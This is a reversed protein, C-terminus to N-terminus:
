QLDVYVHKLITYEELCHASLDCSWGSHKLGGHPMESVLPLHDNIWVEGARLANAIKFARKIDSTWVSSALGYEIDNAKEIAEEENIFRSIAIVPGFIEQQCIISKQEMDRIITIPFFFGKRPTPSQYIIREHKTLQKLFGAVRDRQKASVLPGITTGAHSPDGVALTETYKKALEIFKEYVLGQVYIRAAATCDQGSNVISADVARKAAKELDADAFVIFPAKGGLELHVKKLNDAALQMIEKGTAASGTFAIMDIASHQALMRGVNEGSGTIVNIVGPPFGVKVALQALEFTTLPTCSSPKIVLTNGVAVSALKWCAILLPYNWPTIAAVVGLPERRLFSTGLAHHKKRFHTDSYEGAATATLTRCAGAFFRLNDAAFEIDMTALGITKGQNCSELRALREKDHELAAALKLFLLSREAPTTTRWEKFSQQAAHCAADVDKEQSATITAIKKESFPNIVPIKKPSFAVWTGNIYNKFDKM